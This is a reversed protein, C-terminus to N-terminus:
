FLDCLKWSGPTDMRITFSLSHSFTSKTYDKTQLQVTLYFFDIMSIIYVHCLIILTLASHRNLAFINMVWSISLFLIARQDHFHCCCGFTVFSLVTKKEKPKRKPSPIKKYHLISFIITSSCDRKVARCKTFLAKDHRNCIHVNNNQLCFQPWKIIFISLYWSLCHWTFVIFLHVVSMKSTNRILSSTCRIRTNAARLPTSQTMFSHGVEMTHSYLDKRWLDEGVAACCDKWQHSM